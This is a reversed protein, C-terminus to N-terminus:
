EKIEGGRGETGRQARGANRTSRSLGSQVAMALAEKRVESRLVKGAVSRPISPSTNKKKGHKIEMVMFFLCLFTPFRVEARRLAAASDEALGEALDAHREADGRGQAESGRQAKVQRLEEKLAALDSRLKSIHPGDSAQKAADTRAQSLAASLAALETEKATIAAASQSLKHQM